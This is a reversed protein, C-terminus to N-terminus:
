GEIGLRAATRRAMHALVVAEVQDVVQDIPGDANVVYGNPLAAALARYADRQRASEAHAVEQKRAHLTSVSADLMVVLDPKPVVSWVARALWRPGRFRYRRADVLVDPLYRDYVVLTSRVLAPRIKVWYGLGFDLLWYLAKALSALSSRPIQDHPAAAAAAGRAAARGLIDPSFHGAATSRFAPALRERLSVSITSKGAGDPGLLVLLIGTPRRWRGARRVGERAWYAARNRLGALTTPALLHRRLMPVARVLDAWSGQDIASVILRSDAAHWFRAIERRCGSPDQAYLERLRRAHSEDLSSKGIRKVLSYGFEVAPLPVWFGDYRQRQGLIDSGSYFARGRARYDGSVDFALFRPPAGAPDTALVFYHATAEHQLWQVLSAGLHRRERAILRALKTPLFEATVLCDVDSAIGAPFDNYGHLVCYPVESANLLDLLGQLVESPARTPV